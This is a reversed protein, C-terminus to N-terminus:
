PDAGLDILADAAVVRVPYIQRPPGVDTRGARRYPDRLAKRLAPIASRDGIRRLTMAACFRVTHSESTVLAVRVCRGPSNWRWATGAGHGIDQRLRRGRPRRCAGCTNKGATCFAELNKLEHLIINESESGYSTWRPVEPMTPHVAEAALEALTKAAREEM